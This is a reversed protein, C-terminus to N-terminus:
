GDVKRRRGREKAHTVLKKMWKDEEVEEVHTVLAITSQDV